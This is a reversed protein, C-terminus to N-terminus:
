AQFPFSPTLFRINVINDGIKVGPISILPDFHGKRTM